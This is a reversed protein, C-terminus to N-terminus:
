DGLLSRLATRARDSKQEVTAAMRARQDTLRVSLDADELALISVALWAANAAGAKGIALTGVPVGAPMQVTALLADLGQLDSSPLPVGLVPRTTHAAVVGALHAAAGAGVIFVSVGSRQATAVIQTTREPSRHASTVHMEYAIDLQELFKGFQEVNSRNLKVLNRHAAQVLQLMEEEAPETPLPGVVFDKDLEPVGIQGM